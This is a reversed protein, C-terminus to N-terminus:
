DTRKAFLLTINMRRNEFGDRFDIQDSKHFLNSHFLVARNERYPITITDADALFDAIERRVSPTYKKTNYHRWDWDYPQEKTYVIIGGRDPFRNAHDPTIWFNLTVTGEDTHAAVGECQNNYRYIWMNALHHDGLVRPFREKLEEVVQYLLDCNFGNTQKSSVFNNRSHTFFITSELCFDRLGHLAEPVLFDDLTTVSLSSSHYQDEIQKFDLSGNVTGAGVRPADAYHIVRNHSSGILELQSSDLKTVADPEETLQIETLVESYRDALCQFSSDIRGKAILYELQDIADRMKFTSTFMAGTVPTIGVSDGETFTAANWWPGGHSIRFGQDFAAKAEGFRELVNQVNGLNNHVTAYDPNFQLAKRYCAVAEELKGLEKLANGLNNHAVAYDPQIALAKRYSAVAEDLHGLAKLALGLNYHAEPYDPKIALAKHYSAVAEDLKGLDQLAIGLNSHAEAYDPKLSLAKHYSALAEEPKGQDQLAVGLNYHAEPYDPKIALVKRYSAIAEDLKELGKLAAGLNSHANAYDPKIALAKTILDVAIDNKGTQHAIVGLLHLAIPQDPNNQLIKNYISEAQSLRGENHHQVALDLAQQITLTQQQEAM